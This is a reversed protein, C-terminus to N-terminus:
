CSIYYWGLIGYLIAHCTNVAVELLRYVYPICFIYIWVISQMCIYDFWISNRTYISICTPVYWTWTCCGNNIEQSIYIKHNWIGWLKKGFIHNKQWPWCKKQEIYFFVWFFKTLLIGNDNWSRVKRSGVLRQRLLIVLEKIVFITNSFTSGMIGTCGQRM